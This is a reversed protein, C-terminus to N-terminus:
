SPCKSIQYYRVLEKINKVLFAYFAKSTNSDVSGLTGDVHIGGYRESNAEQLGQMYNGAHGLLELSETISISRIREAEAHNKRGYRETAM